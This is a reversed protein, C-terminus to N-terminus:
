YIRAMVGNRLSVEEMEGLCRTIEVGQALSSNRTCELHKWKQSYPKGCIAVDM